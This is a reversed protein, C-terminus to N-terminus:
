GAVVKWLAVIALCTLPILAMVVWSRLRRRRTSAIFASLEAELGSLTVVQLEERPAMRDGAEFFAQQLRDLGALSAMAARAAISPPPPPPGKVVIVDTITPCSARADPAPQEAFIPIEPTGMTVVETPM